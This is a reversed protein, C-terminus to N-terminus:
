YKKKKRKCPLLLCGDLLTAHVFSTGGRGQCREGKKRTEEEEEQGEEMVQEEEEGARMWRQQRVEEEKKEEDRGQGQVDRGTEREESTEKNVNQAAGVGDSRGEPQRDQAARSVM